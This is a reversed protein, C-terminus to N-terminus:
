LKFLLVGHIFCLLIDEHSIQLPGLFYKDYLFFVLIGISGESSPNNVKIVLISVFGLVSRFYAKKNWQDGKEFPGKGTDTDNGQVSLSVSVYVFFHPM